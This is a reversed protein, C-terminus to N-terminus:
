KMRKTIQLVQARAQDLASDPPTDIPGLDTEDPLPDSGLFMAESINNMMEVPPLVACALKTGAKLGTINTIINWIRSGDSCRCETLNESGQLPQAQSIEVALIDIAYAPDDTKMRLHAPFGAIIRFAYEMEAVTLSEKVTSPKYGSNLAATYLARLNNISELIKSTADLDALAVSDIYSYKVEYLLSGAVKLYESIKGYEIHLKLKRNAVIENIRNLADELVLIRADKATDM